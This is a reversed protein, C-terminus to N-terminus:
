VLATLHSRWLERVKGQISLISFPIAFAFFWEAYGAFGVALACLAFCEAMFKTKGFINSSLSTGKKLGGLHMSIIAGVSIAFLVFEIALLPWIIWPELLAIDPIVLLFLALKDCFPDFFEGFHTHGDLEAWVGDYKDTLLAVAFIPATIYLPVGYMRMPILLAALIPRLASLFNPVTVVEEDAIRFNLIRTIREERKDERREKHRRIWEKVAPVFPKISERFVSNIFRYVATLWAGMRDIIHM